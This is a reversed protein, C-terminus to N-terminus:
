LLMCRSYDRSTINSHNSSLPLKGKVKHFVTFPDEDNWMSETARKQGMHM